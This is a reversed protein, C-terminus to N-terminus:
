ISFVPATNLLPRAVLEYVTHVVLLPKVHSQSLLLLCNSVPLSRRMWLERHPLCIFALLTFCECHTHTHTNLHLFLCLFVMSQTSHFIIFLTHSGTHTERNIREDLFYLCVFFTPFSCPYCKKIDATCTKGAKYKHAQKIRALKRLAKWSLSSWYPSLLSTEVIPPNATAMCSIFWYAIHYIHTQFHMKIYSGHDWNQSVFEQLM